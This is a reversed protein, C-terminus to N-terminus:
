SPELGEARVVKSGIGMRGGVLELKPVAPSLLARVDRM